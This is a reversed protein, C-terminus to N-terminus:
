AGVKEIEGVMEGPKPEDKIWWLMRRHFSMTRAAMIAKIDEEDEAFPERSVCKYMENDLSVNWREQLKGQTNIVTKCKYFM